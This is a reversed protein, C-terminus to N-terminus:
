KEDRCLREGSDELIMYTVTLFGLKNLAELITDLQKMSPAAIEVVCETDGTVLWSRVIGAIDEFLELHSFQYREAAHSGSKFKLAILARIPRGLVAYNIVPRYATILGEDEMRRMRERVAPATLGVSQGIETLTSRANKQLVELIKWDTTDLNLFKDEM